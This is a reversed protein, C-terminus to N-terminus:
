KRLAAQAERTLRADPAGGALRELTKRVEPGGIGRLVEIARVQRLTEPPLSADELKTLLLELRRRMELPPNASLAKQVAPAAVEGLKELDRSAQERVKYEKSDLDALLKAIREKDADPAPSLQKDLLAVTAKPSYLLKGMAQYAIGADRGLDKWCQDQEQATLEVNARQTFRTVDWVLATTDISGSVLTRGDPSFAVSQVWGRHGELKGLQKATFPDFFRVTGDMNATAVTRGDPSFAIEFVMDSEGTLTGRSEGTLVERLEVNKGFRGASAVTRGDPSLASTHPLDAPISRRERGSAIDWSRVFKTESEGPEGSRFGFFVVGRSIITKSDPTFAISVVPTLHGVFEREMKRTARDHLRVIGTNATKVDTGRQGLAMWKGDPSYAVSGARYREIEKGTTADWIVVIEGGCVAAIEKGDPSVVVLGITGLDPYLKSSKTREVEFLRTEKGTQADWLRVSGDWAGTAITKGGPVWAVSTLREQHGILAGAPKGTAADWLHIPAGDALGALTKGDRSFALCRIRDPLSPLEVLKKREAWDWIRIAADTCGIALLKGDPSLAAVGGESRVDLAPLKKGSEVEWIRTEQHGTSILKKGDTSFLVTTLPGVHGTLKRIAEGTETKWLYIGKDSTAAAVIKDDPSFAVSTVSPEVEFEHLKKGTAVDWIYAREGGGAAILTGDRSFTMCNTVIDKIQGKFRRVEQGTAADWLFVVEEGTTSGAVWKGDPSFAVATVGSGPTQIARLEKGTAADWFRLHKEWGGSVLIDKTPSWAVAFLNTGHRLRVSGLRLLADPPLPDGQADVRDPTKAQEPPVIPKSPESTQPATTFSFAAWAGAALTLILALVAAATTKFKAAVGVHLSRAWTAARTTATRADLAGALASPPVASTTAPLATLTGLVAAPALGRHILRGRLLQMAGDLRRRVTSLSTGLVRATEEQTRGELWCLVVPGRFRGPLAAIEADLATLLERATMDALPDAATPERNLAALFLPSAGNHAAGAPGDPLPAQGRKKAARLTGSLRARECRAKVALRQAVAYLWPAISTHWPVSAAKRALVLFTAQFADEADQEHNLTRQCVGWVTAAHRRVLIGFAEADGDVTFRRLLASDSGADTGECAVLRRLQRLLIGSSLHAM